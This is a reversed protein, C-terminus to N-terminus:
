DHVSVDDAGTGVVAVIRGIARIGGDARDVIDYHACSNVGRVHREVAGGSRGHVGVRVQVADVFWLCYTPRIQLRLGPSRREKSEPHESVRIAIRRRTVIKETCNREGSSCQPQWAKCTVWKLIFPYKNDSITRCKGM